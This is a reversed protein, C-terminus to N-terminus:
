EKHHSIKYGICVTSTNLTSTDIDMARSFIPVRLRAARVAKDRWVTRLGLGMDGLCGCGVGRRWRPPPLATPACRPRPQEVLACAVLLAVLFIPVAALAMATCYPKSRSLWRADALSGTLATSFARTASFVAGFLAFHWARQQPPSDATLDALCAKGVALNHTCLGTVVRIALAATATDATGFAATGLGAALTGAVLLPKRGIRDSLHGVFCSSSFQALSYSGQLAGVFTSVDDPPYGFNVAMPPLLPADAQVAIAAAATCGFMCTLQLRSPGVGAPEDTFRRWPM